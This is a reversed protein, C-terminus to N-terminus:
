VIKGKQAKLGDIDNTLRDYRDFEKTGYYPAQHTMHIGFKRVPSINEGDRPANRTLLNQGLSGKHANINKISDISRPISSILPDDLGIIETVQLRPPIPTGKGGLTSLITLAENKMQIANGDAIPKMKPALVKRLDSLFTPMEHHITQTGHEIFWHMSAEEALGLALEEKRLTSTNLDSVGAPSYLSVRLRPATREGRMEEQSAVRRNQLQAGIEAAISGGLSIGTLSLISTPDDRISSTETEILEAYLKGLATLGETKLAELLEESVKGYENTPYGLVYIESDEPTRGEHLDRLAFHMSELISHLAVEIWEFQGGSQIDVPIGTSIFERRKRKSGEPPKRLETLEGPYLRKALDQLNLHTYPFSSNFGESTFVASNEILQDLATYLVTRMVEISHPSAKHREAYERLLADGQPFVHLLHSEKEDVGEQDLRQLAAHETVYKAGLGAGAVTATVAIASRILERKTLGGENM